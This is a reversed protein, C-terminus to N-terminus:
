YFMKIKVRKNIGDCSSLFVGNMHKRMTEKHYPDTIVGKNEFLTCRVSSFLRRQLRISDLFTTM